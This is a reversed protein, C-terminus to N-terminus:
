QFNKSTQVQRHSSGRAAVGDQDEGQVRGGGLAERACGPEGGGSLCTQVSVLCMRRLLMVSHQM